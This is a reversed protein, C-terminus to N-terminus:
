AAAYLPVKSAHLSEAFYPNRVAGVTVLDIKRNFLSELASCLDFYADAVRGEPLQEFEVLFDLDSDPRFPRADPISAAASGFLWLSRVRLRRCITALAETPIDIATTNMAESAYSARAASAM